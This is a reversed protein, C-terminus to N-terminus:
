ELMPTVELIDDPSYFQRRMNKWEGERRAAIWDKTDGEYGVIRITHTFIEGNCDPCIWHIGNNVHGNVCTTSGVNIAFHPIEYQEIMMRAFELNCAPTIDDGLNLHLISGGSVKNMLKGAIHLRNFLDMEEYLPVMQNALLVLPEYGPLDKFKINDMQALKPCASEGPIEEVNFAFGELEMGSRVAFEDMCDLVDSAFEIYKDMHDKAPFSPFMVKYADWLGTYGLTSFFQNIHCWNFNFFQLFGSAIREKLLEKHVVLVRKAMDLYDELHLLYLNRISEWDLDTDSGHDNVWGYMKQFEVAQCHLNTAVVRHSGISLGGNGFTDSRIQDKLRAMDNVLRCCSAVKEGVHINFTGRKLNANMVYEFFEKDAIQGIQVSKCMIKSYDAHSWRKVNVTAVPFKYKKGTLPSGKIFFQIFAKQIKMIEVDNGSVPTSDPYYSDVFFTKLFYSDFISINTFPSDGGVRFTNHMVHVFQQLLDEVYKDYAMDAVKHIDHNHEGMWLLIKDSIENLEYGLEFQSGSYGLGEIFMAIATIADMVDSFKDVYKHIAGREKRTYYALNVLINPVAVAGAFQQSFDMTTEVLQGIFSASKKPKGGPLWGYPRGEHLIFSTDFAFCYPVDIKTIDHFYLGGDLMNRLITESVEPGWKNFLRKWIERYSRIKLQPNFIESTMNVPSKGHINANPTISMDAVSTARFYEDALVVPDMEAIGQIKRVELPIESLVKWFNEDKIGYM